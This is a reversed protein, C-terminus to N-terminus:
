RAFLGKKERIEGPTFGAATVAQKLAEDSTEGSLTVVAWQKDLNVRCEEVGPVAGLAKEVSAQCHACHMGEVAIIKKM